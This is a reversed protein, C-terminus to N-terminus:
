RRRWFISGWGAAALSSSVSAPPYRSCGYCAGLGPWPFLSCDYPPASGPPTSLQQLSHVTHVCGCVLLGGHAGFIGGKSRKESTAVGGLHWHGKGFDLAYNSIM